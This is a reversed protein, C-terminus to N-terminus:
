DHITFLFEGRTILMYHDLNLSRAVKAQGGHDGYFDRVMRTFSSLARKLQTRTYLQADGGRFTTSFDSKATIRIRYQDFRRGGAKNVHDLYEVIEATVGSTIVAVTGDEHLRPTGDPNMAHNITFIRSEMEEKSATTEIWIDIYSEAGRSIMPIHRSGYAWLAADVIFLFHDCKAPLNQGAYVASVIDRPIIVAGDENKFSRTADVGYNKRQTYATPWRQWIGNRNAHIDVLECTPSTIDILNQQSM